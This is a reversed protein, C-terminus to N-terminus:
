KLLKYLRPRLRLQYYLIARTLAIDYLVFVAAALALFVGLYVGDLIADPLMLVYKALVVYVTLVAACTLLKLGWELFSPLREYVAKLLPYLGLAAYLLPAGSPALLLSLASTVLWLAVAWGRGMEILVFIVLFSALAAVSLDLVELFRGLLLLVTGLAALVAVLTLKKTRKM